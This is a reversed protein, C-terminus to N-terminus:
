WMVKMNETKTLLEWVPQVIDSTFEISEQVTYNILLYTLFNARTCHLLNIAIHQLRLGLYFHWHMGQEDFAEAEFFFSIKDGSNMFYDDTM